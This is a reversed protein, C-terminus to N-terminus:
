KIALHVVSCPPLAATLGADNVTFSVFPQDAVTDPEDFTNHDEANGYLM